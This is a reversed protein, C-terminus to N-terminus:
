HIDKKCGVWTQGLSMQVVVFCNNRPGGGGAEAGGFRCICPRPASESSRASSHLSQSRRAQPVPHTCTMPSLSCQVLPMLATSAFSGHLDTALDSRYTDRDQASGAGGGAAPGYLCEVTETAKGRRARRKRKRWGQENSGTCIKIIRTKTSISGEENRMGDRGFGESDLERDVNDVGGGVGVERRGKDDSLYVGVRRTRNPPLLLPIDHM